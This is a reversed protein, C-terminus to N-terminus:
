GAVWMYDM